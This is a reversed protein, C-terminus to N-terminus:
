KSIMESAKLSHVFEDFIYVTDLPGPNGEPHFQVSIIPKSKHRLGEVTGDNINIFSIDFENKDVTYDEVVYGHNQSTIYVKGTKLDKVPHNGGRHGYLLKKTKAGYALAILQHGLCIGLTPYSETIERIKEVQDIASMPDGPGNSIVVGDPNLSKIKEIPYNYPVITVKCNAKLLFHLISKKYGFDLLVIHPGNNEYTIVKKTTVQNLMNTKEKFCVQSPIHDCIVGNVTGKERILKVLKRTDVDILCPLHNTELMNLLSDESLLQHPSYSLEKIVIASAHIQGCENFDEDIGYNGVLPYTFVIIQGAYSPDTIVEQYGTMSTNFVVEGYIQDDGNGLLKGEFIEGTELILYGQKM